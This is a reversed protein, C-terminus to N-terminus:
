GITFRCYTNHFNLTVTHVDKIYATNTLCVLFYFFYVSDIMLGISRGDFFFQLMENLIFEVPKLSLIFLLINMTPVTDLIPLRPEFGRYKMRTTLHGHALKWVITIFQNKFGSLSYYIHYSLYYSRNVGKQYASSTGILNFM